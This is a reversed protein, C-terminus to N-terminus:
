AEVSRVYGAKPLASVAAIEKENQGDDVEFDAPAHYVHYGTENSFDPRGAEEYERSGDGIKQDLIKAAEVPNSADVVGFVYGSNNDILAYRIKTM